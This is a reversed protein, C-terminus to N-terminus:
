PTKQARGYSYWDALACIPFAGLADLVSHQKVFATSLCVLVAFVTMAAKWWVRVNKQRLWSSAIILSYAVHMSPFVNTNTDIAYLLGLIRTFINDRAFYLPRLDQRNPFVLYIVTAAIMAIIVSKMMARFGELDYLLFWLVSGAVYFYWLIYPVVFAECFPILDDFTCYVTYCNERPILNETLLYSLGYLPWALLLWLHRYQPTNLKRLRFDRYDVAKHKTKRIGFSLM